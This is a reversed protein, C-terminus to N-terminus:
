RTIAALWLSPPKEAPMSFLRKRSECSPIETRPHAQACRPRNACFPPAQSSAARKTDYRFGYKARIKEDRKKSKRPHLFYLTNILRRRGKDDAVEIWNENVSLITGICGTSIDGMIECRKGIMKEILENMFANRERSRLNRRRTKRRKEPLIICFYLIGFLIIWYVIEM